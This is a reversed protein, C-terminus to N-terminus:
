EDLVSVDIEDIYITVPEEEYSQVMFTASSFDTHSTLDGEYRFPQWDGNGTYPQKRPQWSDEGDKQIFLSTRCIKDKAL